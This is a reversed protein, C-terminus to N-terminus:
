QACAPYTQKTQSHYLNCNSVQEADNEGSDVTYTSTAVSATTLQKGDYTVCNVTTKLTYQFSPYKGRPDICDSIRVLCVDGNFCKPAPYVDDAAFSTAASGLLAMGLILGSLKRM